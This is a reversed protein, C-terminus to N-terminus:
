SSATSQSVRSSEASGIFPSAASASVRALLLAARNVPWELGEGAAGGARAAAGSRTTRSTGSGARAGENVGL